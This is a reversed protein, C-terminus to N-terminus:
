GRFSFFEASCTETSRVESNMRKVSSSFMYIQYLSDWHSSEADHLGDFIGDLLLNPYRKKPGSSWKGSMLFWLPHHWQCPAALGDKAEVKCLAVLKEVQSIARPWGHLHSGLYHFNPLQHFTTKKRTFYSYTKCQFLATACVTAWSHEVNHVHLFSWFRIDEEEGKLINRGLFFFVAGHVVGMGTSCRKRIRKGFSPASTRHGSRHVQLRSLFLLAASSIWIHLQINMDFYCTDAQAELYGLICPKEIADGSLTSSSDTLINCPM